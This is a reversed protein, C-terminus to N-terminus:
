PHGATRSTMSRAAPSTSTPAQVISSRALGVVGLSILAAAAAVAALRPQSTEPAIHFGLIGIVYSAVPNTITMAAVATPISGTAFAWQGLIVGTLTSAALAYGPWDVATATVGRAVLDEATLKMLAASTAFCLGAGVSILATQVPRSRNTSARVLAAVVAAASLGALVIQDRDAGGQLASRGRTVLFLTVGACIAAGSTWAMRSPWRRVWWTTLPLAFILQTVLLPQVLAVSGFHLAAGQALFGGLNIGWGLRWLQSRPLQQALALLFARRQLDSGAKHPRRGLEHRRPHIVRNAKGAEHQQLSAALAFLFAAALGLGVVLLM